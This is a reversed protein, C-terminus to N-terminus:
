RSYMGGINEIGISGLQNATRTIRRECESPGTTSRTYQVHIKGTSVEKRLLAVRVYIKRGTRLWSAGAVRVAFM